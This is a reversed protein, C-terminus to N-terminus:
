TAALQVRAFAEGLVPMGDTESRVVVGVQNTAAFLEYLMQIELNLADAIWYNSFDGLIGVYQSATFTSPAYESMLVPMGLIRDPDGYQVSERWIYQGDGNKLQAVQKVGDRHFIWRANAWYQQKLSYKANILGDFTMSTTTNGTSVDRTTAIGNNSATFLGLPQNTGSGNLFANEETVGQKYGLRQVVLAEVNAAMRMLKRSVKIYKALPHPTLERKGFSMTSDETGILLESTWAPDAPDNDLSPAGLSMASQVTVQTALGRLIVFNDKAKILTNMFQQPPIIYGGADPKDSQLARMESESVGERGSRLYRVFASRMEPTDRPKLERTTDPEPVAAFSRALESELDIQRKKLDVDETISAVRDLLQNITQREEATTERNEASARDLIERSQKVLGARETLLKRIEPNM